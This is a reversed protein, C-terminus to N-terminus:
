QSYSKRGPRATVFPAPGMVLGINNDAFCGVMTEAWQPGPLCDADTALLIEGRAGEIATTLAWKKPAWGAPVDLLQIPTLNPMRDTHRSLIEWTNDSSGDDVVIIELRDAPYTQTRLSNLLVPLNDEENRAIVLITVMPQYESPELPRLRRLGAWTWIMFAAYLLTIPLLIPLMIM